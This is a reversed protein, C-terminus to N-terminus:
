LKGRCLAAAAENMPQAGLAIRYSLVRCIYENSHMNGNYHAVAATWSGWRDHLDRLYWAAYAVNIRPNLADQPRQFVDGHYRMYLQMCGVAVDTRMRGHRDVMLRLAENATALYHPEGAINLTWPWPAGGYGSEVYSIAEILGPLIKYYREAPRVYQLCGTASPPQVARAQTQAEVPSVTFASAVMLALAALLRRKL